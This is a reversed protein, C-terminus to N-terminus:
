RRKGAKFTFWLILIFQLLNILIQTTVHGITYRSTVSKGELVFEKIQKLSLEKFIIFFVNKTM